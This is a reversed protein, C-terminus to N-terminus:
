RWLLSVAGPIKQWSIIKTIDKSGTLWSKYKNRLSERGSKLEQRISGGIPQSVWDGGHGYTERRCSWQHTGVLLRKMSYKMCWPTSDTLMVLLLNFISPNCRGNRWGLGIMWEDFIISRRRAHKGLGMTGVRETLWYSFCCILCIEDWFTCNTSALCDLNRWRICTSFPPELYAVILMTVSIPSILPDQCFQTLDAFVRPLSFPFSFM